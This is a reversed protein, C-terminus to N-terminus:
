TGVGDIAGKGVGAARSCFAGDACVALDGFAVLHTRPRSTGCRPCVVYGHKDPVQAPKAQVEAEVTM